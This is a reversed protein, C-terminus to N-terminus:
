MSYHIPLKQDLFKYKGRSTRPISDLYKLSLSFDDGLRKQFLEKISRADDDSFGEKKVIHLVIEGETDQYLQYEKINSSSKAIMQLVGMIPMLRKTKSVMFDQVRGEVSQFLPSHRGCACHDTSYTAIDGTKYRIFPFIGTHFGTAVIEGSKGDQTVQNGDRDILEVFGYEPFIHYYDSKECPGAFVCQERHGYQGYVRCRFFEELFESQWEYITEGYCIIANQGHVEISNNKMYTALITMASPYGIFYHPQLRKIKKAYIPLNKETMHYSSLVLTRSFPRYEWPKERGILQVSKDLVHCGARELLVTTYALHKAYWVGKEIPFKLLFGTSGGTTTDECSSAPYNLARLENSHDQIMEKTLFPLQRFDQISTIDDPTIGQTKFLKRYYPVHEYAHHLLATLQEWQYKKIQEASWWQSQTIFDYTKKYVSRYFLVTLVNGRGTDEDFFYQWLKHM